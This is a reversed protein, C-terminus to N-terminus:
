HDFRAKRTRYLSSKVGERYFFVEGTTAFFVPFHAMDRISMFITHISAERRAPDLPIILTHINASEAGVKSQHNKGGIENTTGKELHSM